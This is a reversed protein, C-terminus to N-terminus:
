EFRGSQKAYLFHKECLSMGRFVYMAYEKEDCRVCFNSCLIAKDPIKMGTGREVSGEM